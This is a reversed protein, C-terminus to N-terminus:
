PEVSDGRMWAEEDHRMREEKNRVGDMLARSAKNAGNLTRQAAAHLAGAPGGFQPRVGPEGNMIADVDVDTSYTKVLEIRGIPGYGKRFQIAFEGGPTLIMHTNRQFGMFWFVAALLAAAAVIIPLKTSRSPRATPPASGQPAHDTM